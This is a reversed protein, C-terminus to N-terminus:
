KLGHWGLRAKRESEETRAAGVLSVVWDDPDPADPRQQVAVWSVEGAGLEGNMVVLDGKRERIKELEAIVQTIKM